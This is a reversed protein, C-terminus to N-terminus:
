RYPGCRSWLLDHGTARPRPLDVDLLADARDIAGPMKYAVTKM